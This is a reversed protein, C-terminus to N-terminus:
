RNHRDPHVCGNAVPGLNAIKGGERNQVYLQGREIWAAGTTPLLNWISDIQEQTLAGDGDAYLINSEFCYWPLM